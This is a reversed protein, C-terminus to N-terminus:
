ARIVKTGAIRDHLCRRGESFIFCYDALLFLFGFPPLVLVLSVPLAFRLLVGHVFGAPLGDNARVVRVGTLIMGLNQGRVTLLVAQVLIAALLAARMWWLGESFDTLDLEDLPPFSGRQIEPFREVLRRSMMMSGPVLSLFYIFANVVAAATRAGIGALEALGAAADAPWDAAAAEEGTALMPPPTGPGAFEAFDGLCRWEESGPTKAKTELNARGSAIWARIQAATAPGYEKGDGGIIM